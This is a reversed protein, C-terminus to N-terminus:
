ELLVAALRRVQAHMGAIPQDQPQLVLQLGEPLAGRM